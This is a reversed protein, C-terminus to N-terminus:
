PSQKQRLRAKLMQGVHELREFEGLEDREAATLSGDRNRQLLGDLRAQHDPRLRFALLRGVDASDVLLDLLEDYIPSQPLAPM